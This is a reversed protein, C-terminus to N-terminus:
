GMAAQVCSEPLNWLLAGPSSIELSVESERSIEWQSLTLRCCASVVNDRSMGPAPIPRWCGPATVEKGELDKLEPSM